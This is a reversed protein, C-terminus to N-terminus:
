CGCRAVPGNQKGRGIVGKVWRALCLGGASGVVGVLIAPDSDHAEEVVAFAVVVFAIIYPFANWVLSGLFWRTSSSQLTKACAHGKHCGCPAASKRGRLFTGAAIIAAAGARLFLQLNSGAQPFSQTRDPSLIQSFHDLEIRIGFLLFLHDM